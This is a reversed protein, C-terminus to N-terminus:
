GYEMVIGGLLDGDMEVAPGVQRDDSGGPQEVRRHLDSDLYMLKGGADGAIAKLM